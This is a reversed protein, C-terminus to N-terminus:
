ELVPLPVQEGLARRRVVLGNSVCRVGERVVPSNSERDRFVITIGVVHIRAVANEEVVLARTTAAGEHRALNGM